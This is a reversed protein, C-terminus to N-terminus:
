FGPLLGISNLLSTITFAAGSALIGIVVIGGVLVVVAMVPILWVRWGSLQHAATVGIWTGIITLAFAALRAIPGVEPLLGLLNILNPVQGFGMGRLTQTYTGRGGLIRASAFMVLVLVPWVALRVLLDRLFTQPSSTASVVISSSLVLLLAPSTMYPDNVVSRYAERDLWLAHAALILWTEFRNLGELLVGIAWENVRTHPKGNTGSAALPQPQSRRAGLIYFIDTANQTDPVQMDPPHFIFADTQEGGLGGHNGILEEMAAVTGDPYLTSNVILDGANPFDAIRGVQNARLEPDGYDALPDRGHVEGTHLNRSGQKGLAVPSFDTTYVVVFGVGEHAVLAEVMGPYATQLQLLTARRPFLDFYVQALNGSGCVIVESTAIQADQLDQQETSKALVRNTQRMVRQGVRGGVGQVQMNEIEAAMARVGLTGDDGGSSLMVGTGEPLHREIFEKLSEGYRQHFTWGYSQGHDSLLILEYPIPAKRRIIDCVRAVVSDFKRLVRFADESWPGAHHAVEDYGPWTMYITPSGRIIDLVVLYSAIDRLFVTTIARLLPYFHALRNLRPQVNKLRQRTGEWLERLVDALFLVTTRMMFYPNLMLLYMDQARRKREDPTGERLNALTLMSKEADGNLMNNISSGGRLLGRGKAYRANLLSADKGSVILRKNEKDYWRFAPIDYNDGFMIGAQAASTQSPLGCDVRSLSYNEYKVMQAVTPMLGDEIVKRMHWYSLGDIELMVLGRKVDKSHVFTQRAALREVLGQYFQDDDDISIFGTILTNIAALLVGGFFAALWSDVNFGPLIAATIFLTIANVFFGVVFLAFFGFPLALLLIVPRVILNVAGLLLAAAVAVVLAPTNNVAQISIGPILMATIFLSIVDVVWLVAFRFIIRFIFRITRL